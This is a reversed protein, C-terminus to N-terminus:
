LDSEAPSVVNSDTSFRVYQYCPQVTLGMELDYGYVLPCGM